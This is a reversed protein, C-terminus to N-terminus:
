VYVESMGSHNRNYCHSSNTGNGVSNVPTVFFCYNHCWHKPQLSYMFETSVIRCQSYHQSSSHDSMIVDVCYTIDTEANATNLSFPSEWSIHFSGNQLLLQLNEGM